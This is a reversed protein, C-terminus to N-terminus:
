QWAPTFTYYMIFAAWRITEKHQGEDDLMIL